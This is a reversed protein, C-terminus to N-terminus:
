PAVVRAITQSILDRTRPYFESLLVRDNIRLANAAPEEGEPVILTRFGKFAGSAALRATV